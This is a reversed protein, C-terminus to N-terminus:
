NLCVTMAIVAAIANQGSYKKALSHLFLTTLSLTKRVNRQSFMVLARPNGQAKRKNPCATNRRGLPRHRASWGAAYCAKVPCFTPKPTRMPREMIPCYTLKSSIVLPGASPTALSKQAKEGKRPGAEGRRGNLPVGELSLVDWSKPNHFSRALWCPCDCGQILLPRVTADVFIRQGFGVKLGVYM